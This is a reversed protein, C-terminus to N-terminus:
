AAGEDAPRDRGTVRAYALTLVREHTPADIGSRQALVPGFLRALEEARDDSLQPRRRLFAEIVQLEENSLVVGPPLAQREQESVPPQIRVGGLVSSRDEAVVVTGAVLDGIRRLKPDIAM